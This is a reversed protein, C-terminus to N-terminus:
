PSTGEVGHVEEFCEFFFCAIVEVMVEEAIGFIDVQAVSSEQQSEFRIHCLVGYDVVM